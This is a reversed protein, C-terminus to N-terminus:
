GWRIAWACWHLTEMTMSAVAHVRCRGATRCDARRRSQTPVKSTKTTPPLILTPYTYMTCFYPTRVELFLLLRATVWQFQIARSM